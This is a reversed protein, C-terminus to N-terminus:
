SPAAFRRAFVGLGEGDNGFDSWAVVFRGDPAMAVAPAIQRGAIVNNVPFEAGRPTGAADYLQGFIGWTDGDQSDSQWVVVFGGPSAAVAPLTQALATHTNARFEPGVPGGDSYRRAYVGSLSGDQGFSQWAVVFGGAGDAAVAPRAQDFQTTTNVPTEPGLRVPAAALLRRPELREVGAGGAPTRRASQSSIGSRV